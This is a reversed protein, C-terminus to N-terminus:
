EFRAFEGHLELAKACYKAHAEEATRFCGLDVRKGLVNIRARFGNPYPFVGKFGTKNDKHRKMNCMNQRHTAARLNGMRRNDLGNGNKHDVDLGKPEGLIVRHMHEQQGDPTRYRAYYRNGLVSPDATWNRGSVLDADEVEIVSFLGRTLPVYCISPGIVFIVRRFRRTYVRKPM